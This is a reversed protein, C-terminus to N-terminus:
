RRELKKARDLEKAKLDRIDDLASLIMSLSIDIEKLVKILEREFEMTM